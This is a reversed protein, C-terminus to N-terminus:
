EACQGRFIQGAIDFPECAVLHLPVHSLYPCFLRIFLRRGHRCTCVSGAVRVVAGRLVCVSNHQSVRYIPRPIRLFLAAPTRIAPSRGMKMDTKTVEAARVLKGINKGSTSGRRGVVRRQRSCCRCPSPWAWDQARAVLRARVPNLAVYRAAAVLHADDLAESSFRSQSCRHL